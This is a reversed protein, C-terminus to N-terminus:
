ICKCVYMNYEYVCWWIRSCCKELSRWLKSTYLICVFMCITSMCSYTCIYIYIYMCIYINCEYVFIYTYIYIGWHGRGVGGWLAGPKQPQCGGRARAHWGHARRANRAVKQLKEGDTYIDYMYTHIYIYVHICIWIQIFIRARARHGDDPRAATQRPPFLIYRYICIHIYIRIFIHMYMYVYIYINIYM